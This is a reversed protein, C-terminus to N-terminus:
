NYKLKKKNGFIYYYLFYLISALVASVVLISTEDEFYHQFYRDLVHFFTILWVIYTSVTELLWVIIRLVFLQIKSYIFIAIIIMVSESILSLLYNDDEDSDTLNRARKIEEFANNLNIIEEKLKNNLDSNSKDKIKDPHYKLVKSKYEKKIEKFSAYSPVGIVKYPNISITYNIQFLIYLLLTIFTFKNNLINTTNKM